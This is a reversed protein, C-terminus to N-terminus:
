GGKLAPGLNRAMDLGAPLLLATLIVPLICAVLPITLLVPIRMAKEEAALFRHDRMENSYTRLTQGISTGLTDTQILLAVFSRVSEVDTRDAMARLADARSRGAALEQVVRDFEESIRPHSEGVERTVRVFASELGLGAEVCVVMLDLADPFEQELQTKRANIRNDLLARPAILGLGCFGLAGAILMFGSLPKSSFRQML